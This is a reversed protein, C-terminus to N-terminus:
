SALCCLSLHKDNDEDLSHLTFITIQRIKLAFPLLRKNSVTIFSVEYQQNIKESILFSWDKMLKCYNIIFAEPWLIRLSKIDWSFAKWALFWRTQMADHVHFDAELLNRHEVTCRCTYTNDPKRKYATEASHRCCCRLTLNGPLAPCWLLVTIIYVGQEM